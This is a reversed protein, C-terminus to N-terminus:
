IQTADPMKEEGSYVLKMGAIHIRHRIVVKQQIKSLIQAAEVGSMNMPVFNSRATNYVLM